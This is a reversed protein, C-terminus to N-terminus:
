GTRRSEGNLEFQCGAGLRDATRRDYISAIAELTHNSVCILGCGERRDLMEHVVEYHTDTVARIGMEDLVVLPCGEIPRHPQIVAPSYWAWPFPEADRRFTAQKKEVLQTCTIYRSSIVHDALSLAACSKGRGELGHLFLPWPARGAVLDAFLRLLAPETKSLERPKHESFRLGGAATLIPAPRFPIARMRATVEDPATAARNRSSDLAAQFVEDARPPIRGGAAPSGTPRTPSTSEM